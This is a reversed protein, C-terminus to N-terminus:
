DNGFDNNGTFTQGNRQDHDTNGTISAVNGQPPETGDGAHHCPGTGQSRKAAKTRRKRPKASPVREEDEILWDQWGKCPDLENRRHPYLAILARIRRAEAQRFERINQFRHLSDIKPTPTFQAKRLFPERLEQRKRGATRRGSEVAQLFKDCARSVDMLDTASLGNQWDNKVPETARAYAGRTRAMRTINANTSFM